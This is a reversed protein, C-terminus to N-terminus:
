GAMVCAYRSVRTGPGLHRAIPDEGVLEPVYCVQQSVVSQGNHVVEIM